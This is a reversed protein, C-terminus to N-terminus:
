FEVSDISIGALKIAKESLVVHVGEEEHDKEDMVKTKENVSSVGEEVGSEDARNKTCGSAAFIIIGIVVAIVKINNLYEKIM